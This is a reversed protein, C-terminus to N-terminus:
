AAFRASLGGDVMWAAGTVFSAQDSALFAVVSAIEDPDGIRGLPHQELMRREAALPDPARELRELVLGARVFGPCVANVRIGQPALELALSRTLGVIGAKAAAYPFMGHRTMHAHISAVNVIAARGSARMGPIARRACLWAAKLDIAFFRDWETETMTAPDYHANVGANNVLTTVGAIQAEVDSFAADVDAASAVDCRVFISDLERAARPGANEDIDLIAVRAGDRAFRRAAALGIGRAGGTVVTAAGSHGDPPM